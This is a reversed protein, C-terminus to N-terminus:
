VCIKESYSDGANDTLFSPVRLNLSPRFGVLGQDTPRDIKLVLKWLLVGVESSYENWSQRAGQCTDYNACKDGDGYPWTLSRKTHGVCNRSNCKSCIWNNYNDFSQVLYPSLYGNNVKSINNHSIQSEAM